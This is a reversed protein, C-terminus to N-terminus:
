SASFTPAGHCRFSITITNGEAAEAFDFAGECLPLEIISTTASDTMTIKTKWAWITADESTAAAFSGTKRVFDLVRAHTADTITQNELEISISCEQVLDQTTVFGDHAGRNYKAVVERNSSRLNSITFNGEGPGITLGAAANDEFRVTTQRATYRSAM